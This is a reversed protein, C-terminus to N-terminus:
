GRINKRANELREKFELKKDKYVYHGCSKCLKKDNSNPIYVNLGCHQCKYRFQAYIADALEAKTKRRGTTTYRSVGNFASDSKM